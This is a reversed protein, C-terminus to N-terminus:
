TYKSYYVAPLICVNNTWLHFSVHVHTHVYICTYFGVLSIKVENQKATLRLIIFNGSKNEHMRSRLAPDM